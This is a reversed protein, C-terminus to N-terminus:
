SVPFFKDCIRALMREAGEYFKKLKNAETVKRLRESLRPHWLEQVIMCIEKHQCNFCCIETAELEDKM